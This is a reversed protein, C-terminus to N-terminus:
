VLSRGKVAREHVGGRGDAEVRYVHAGPVRAVAQTLEGDLFLAGVGVPTLIAGAAARWVIPEGWLLLGVVGLFGGGALLLQLGGRDFRGTAVDLVGRLGAATSIAAILALALSRYPTPGLSIHLQLSIAGIAGLLFATLVGGALAVVGLLVSLVRM